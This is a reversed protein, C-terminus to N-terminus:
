WPTSHNVLPLVHTASLATSELLQDELLKNKNGTKVGVWCVKYTYVRICVCVGTHIRVGEEWGKIKGETGRLKFKTKRCAVHMYWTAIVM